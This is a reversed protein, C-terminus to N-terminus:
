NKEMCPISNLKTIGTDGAHLLPNPYRFKIETIDKIAGATGDMPKLIKAKFMTPQNFFAAMRHFDDKESISFSMSSQTAENVIYKVKNFSKKDEVLKGRFLYEGCGEFMSASASTNLTLFLITLVYKM